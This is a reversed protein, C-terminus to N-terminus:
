QSLTLTVSVTVTVSDTLTLSHFLLTPRFQNIRSRFIVCTVAPKVTLEWGNVTVHIINFISCFTFSTAHLGTLLQLKVSM